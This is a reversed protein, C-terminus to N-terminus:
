RFSGVPSPVDISHMRPGQGMTMVGGSRHHCSLEEADGRPVQPGVVVCEAVLEACTARVNDEIAKTDCRLSNESKIWDDDRGRSVYRGPAVELFLDGTHYHGDAHRLSPHPCDGPTPSSSSSWAAAPERGRLRDRVGHHRLRRPLHPLLRVRHGESPTCTRQTSDRAAVSEYSPLDRLSELPTIGGGLFGRSAMQYDPVQTFAHHLMEQTTMPEPIAAPTSAGTGGGNPSHASSGNASHSQQQHLAQLNAHSSSRSGISFTSSLSTFPKM